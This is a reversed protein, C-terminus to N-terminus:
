RLAAVDTVPQQCTFDECVYVTPMSAERGEFLEFGADALARAQENSVIAVVGRRERSALVALPSGPDDTVVVLQRAPSALRSMVTLASGLAIPQRVAIEAVREMTRVVADRYRADATLQYLHLAASAVASPGSPLPGDGPDPEIVLGQAVLVPDSPVTFAGQPERLSGADDRETAELVEAVLDRAATAYRVEGTVEALNLLGDALLGYDELTATAESLTDGISARVLRDPLVHHKLLYEAAAAAADEWEPEGLVRGAVAFARIALGNWGTLVKEDLAPPTESTRDVLRYYGGESRQGAVTSESDQGSAFAGSPLRM